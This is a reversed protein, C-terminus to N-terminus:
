FRYTDTIQRKTQAFPQLVVQKAYRATFQNKLNFLNLDVPVGTSPLNLKPVLTQERGYPSSRPNVSEFYTALGGFVEDAVAETNKPGNYVTRFKQYSFQVSVRHFNDDSWSLPQASVGIPFADILEVAYIQKVYDDFQVIMINTVYGDTGDTGKSFRVNNTNNPAISELWIDFLKREYFSEATSLFQLTTETYQALYPVKYGPGYVRADATLLTKGPLEAQECQLSLWRPINEGLGFPRGTQANELGLQFRQMSGNNFTFDGNDATTEQGRVFKSIYSPIPLIVHFRNPKVLGNKSNINSLFSQPTFAM